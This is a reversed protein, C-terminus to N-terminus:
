LANKGEAKKITEDIVRVMFSMEGRIYAQMLGWTTITISIIVLSVIANSLLTQEVVEALTYIQQTALWYLLYIIMCNSIVVRRHLEALKKTNALLKDVKVPKDLRISEAYETNNM